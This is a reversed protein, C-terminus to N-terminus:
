KLCARIFAIAFYLICFKFSLSHFMNTYLLSNSFQVQMHESVKVVVDDEQLKDSLAEEM